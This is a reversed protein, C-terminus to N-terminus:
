CQVIDLTWNMMKKDIWMPIEAIRGFASDVCTVISRDLMIVFIGIMQDMIAVHKKYM